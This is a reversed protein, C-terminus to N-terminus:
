RAEYKITQLTNGDSHCNDYSYTVEGEIGEVRANSGDRNMVLWGSTNAETTESCFGGESNSELYYLGFMLAGDRREIPRVLEVAKNKPAGDLTYNVVAQSKGFSDLTINIDGVCIERALSVETTVLDVNRVYCTEAFASFSLLLSAILATKM